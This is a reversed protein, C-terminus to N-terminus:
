SFALADDRPPTQLFGYAFRHGSSCSGWLLSHPRALQCTVIFGSAILSRLLLHPLHAPFTLARVRPSRVGPRSSRYGQSLLWASAAPTLLPWLVVAISTPLASRRSLVLVMLLEHSSCLLCGEGSLPVAPCAFGTFGTPVSWLASGDGARSLPVDSASFPNGLVAYHKVFRRIRVRM